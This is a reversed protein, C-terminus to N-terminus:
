RKRSSIAVEERFGRVLLLDHGVVVYVCSVRGFPARVCGFGGRPLRGALMVGMGPLRRRCCGEPRLLHVTIICGVLGMVRLDMLSSM